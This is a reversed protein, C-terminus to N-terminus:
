RRTEPCLFEFLFRNRGGIWGRWHGLPDSSIRFFYGSKGIPYLREKIRSGFSTFSFPICNKMAFNLPIVAVTLM